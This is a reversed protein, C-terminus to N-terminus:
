VLRSAIQFFLTSVIWATGLQLGIAALTWKASGTERRITAISAICPVYLLCFIMMSYANVATFGMAGLAAAFAQMGAASSINQIRFLVSSASVVVEKASIGAILAVALQWYGLGAPKLAPAIFRGVIAAFSESVDSTLGHPGFNMVAWLVVSAAFIVTGARTLYDKVKTWVYIAVSRANPTKYEPLEILLTGEAQHDSKKNLLKACLIAVLIGLLYMSYAALIAYKGFFMGSFLVYIPLRASCSMFPTVLITRIRDSPNELTRAAMVAPVTCGFGLIMPIFAKGSFGISGMISDMVYAIRSMYGSDELIALALFLIFINPLFTLIGGVGGIVGDVVLSIVVDSAGRGILFNRVATSFAELGIEMYGKFFDGVTFTLFFVGAMILLFIPLGWIRHTMIRDARETAAAKEERGFVTERMVEEIFGYREDILATEYNKDLLASFDMDLKKEIQEDHELIKIAHWRLNGIEPHKQAIVSEIQDLKDEIPDSYVMAYEEHHPHPHNGAHHHHEIRDTPNCCHHELAHMLTPLGTRKRASVPIVPAGLMEPLRHLDIELGREKVIDMMNLAVVVPKGLELLQLTLYLNRELNSADVVNVIIDVNGELIERRTVIEEMTYCTLAYTGPLDVLTFNCDGFTVHGEKREVTVGPYNAVKLNAGTIANFLSTKGCNPNGVFAVTITKNM